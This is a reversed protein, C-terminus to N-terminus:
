EQKEMLALLVNPIVEFCVTCRLGVQTGNLLSLVEMEKGCHKMAEAGPTAEM